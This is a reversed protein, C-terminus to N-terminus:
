LRSESNPLWLLPMQPLIIGRRCRRAGHATAKYITSSQLTLTLEAAFLMLTTLEHATGFKRTQYDLAEAASEMAYSPPGDTVLYVASIRRWDSCRDRRTPMSHTEM